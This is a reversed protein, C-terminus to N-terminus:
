TLVPKNSEDYFPIWDSPHRTHIWLRKSEHPYAENFVVKQINTNLIKKTCSLCPESTTFIAWAKNIDPCQLLANEEAHIAECLDLGEGSKQDAGACPQDTCHIFGRPSGNFGVSLIQRSESVIVAGVKRRKCTSMGQAVLAINMFYHMYRNDMIM